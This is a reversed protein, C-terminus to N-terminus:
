KAAHGDLPQFVRYAGWAFGSPLMFLCFGFYGAARFGMSTTAVWFLCKDAYIM